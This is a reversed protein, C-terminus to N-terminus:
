SEPISAPELGFGSYDQLAEDLIWDFAPVFRLPRKIVGVEDQHVRLAELLKSLTGDATALRQGRLGRRQELTCHLKHM